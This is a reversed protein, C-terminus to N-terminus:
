RDLIKLNWTAIRVLLTSSPTMYSHCVTKNEIFISSVISIHRAQKWRGQRASTTQEQNESSKRLNWTAIRVLLTSSPTMYSHCVTKNEIYISSVISIHRAQKWRGQRASTTQEKNESSKRLNWTAIRVLLTSGPTMFSHCVTENEKLISSVISIHRAQKWRGQRASTTQEQNESSKRLNWTAIRVLLTSGPTMFSYCVTENEKLISSVISIHRAQKWREQRASTTQEQYYILSRSNELEQYCNECTCNLQSDYLFLVSDWKRKLHLISHQYAKSGKM